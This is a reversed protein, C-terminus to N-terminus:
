RDIGSVRSWAASATRVPIRCWVFRGDRYTEQVPGHGDVRFSEWGGREGIRNTCIVTLHEVTRRGERRAELVLLSANLKVTPDLNAMVRVTDAIGQLLSARVHDVAVRRKGQPTLLACLRDAAGALQDARELEADRYQAAWRRSGREGYSRRGVETLLFIAIWALLLPTGIRERPAWDPFAGCELWMPIIGLLVAVAFAGAPVIRITGGASLWAELRDRM